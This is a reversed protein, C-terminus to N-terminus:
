TKSVQHHKQMFALDRTKEEGVVDGVSRNISPTKRWSSGVEGFGLRGVQHHAV